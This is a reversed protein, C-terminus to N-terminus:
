RVASGCKSDRDSARAFILEAMISFAIEIQTEAKIEMGIPCRVNVLEEKNFGERVLLKFLEDRKRTSGMMGIYRANRGLAQRLVTGDHM